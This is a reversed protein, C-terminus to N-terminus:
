RTFCNREVRTINLTAEDLMEESNMTLTEEEATVSRTRARTDAMITLMAQCSILALFTRLTYSVMKM